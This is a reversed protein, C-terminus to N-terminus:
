FKEQGNNGGSAHCSVTMWVKDQTVEFTLGPNDKALKNALALATGFAGSGGAGTVKVRVWYESPVDNM